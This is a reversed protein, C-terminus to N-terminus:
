WTLPINPPTTTSPPIRYTKIVQKMVAAFVPAAAMSTKIKTPEGLTVVVAYQPNDVTSIGAVSVNREKGYAKTAPDAVQATGTKAAIRYGPITVIKSINSYEAVTEMMLLTNQAAEASVVRTGETSPQDTVTGDPRECGEALTLPVRVGGNGLTQYLGAMQASTVSIGQGFQQAKDSIVDISAPDQVLGGSEGLFDVATPSGFGFKKLYATRQAVPLRESIVSIGINSSQEIIGTATWRMTPHAFVDTIRAGAPFGTSYQSPVVVQDYPTLKGADMLSAVTAPKMISGPEYPSTFFRAGRNEPSTADVDNPDVTPYQAAAVIDGDKIRVVAVTGWKAGQALVQEQLAQQSFWQLDSDLTLKLTGGDKAAKTVRSSAPIQVWDAGHEYSTSGNSSALCSQASLELGALPTSGTGTFGVLNGAIAGQPYSRAPEPESSLWALGLAKVKQFTALKVSLVLRVYNKTPDATLARLIEQPDAGTLAAIKALATSPNEGRPPNAAWSAFTNPAATINWRQVSDALVIGNADVISGRTGYTIYSAKQIKTAQQTLADARVVQLDVLRTTFVGVVAVTALLSVAVRRRMSRSLSM